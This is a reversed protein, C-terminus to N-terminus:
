LVHGEEKGEGRTKRDAYHERQHQVQDITEPSLSKRRGRARLNLHLACELEDRGSRCTPWTSEWSSANRTCIAANSDLRGPRKPLTGTTANLNRWCQPANLPW